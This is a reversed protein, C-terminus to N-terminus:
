GIAYIIQGSITTGAAVALPAAQTVLGIGGTLNTQYVLQFNTTSALRLDLGYRTSGQVLYGRGQPRFPTADVWAASCAVPINIAYTGSGTAGFACTFAFICMGDTIQYRGTNTMGTPNTTSATIVPTYSTPPVDANSVIMKWTSNAAVGLTRIWVSPNGTALGYFYQTAMGASTVITFVTATRAEPYGGDATAQALSVTYMSTGLPYSGAFATTAIPAAMLTNIGSIPDISVWTGNSRVYWTGADFSTGVVCMKFPVSAYASDRAATTAFLKVGLVTEMSQAMTSFVNEIPTIPDSPGPYWIGSATTAM